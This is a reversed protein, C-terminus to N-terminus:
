RPQRGIEFAREVHVQQVGDQEGANRPQEGREHVQQNAAPKHVREDLASPAGKADPLGNEEASRTEPQSNEARCVSSRGGGREEPDAHRDASQRRRRWHAPRNRRQYRGALADAREASDDIKAIMKRSDGRRDSRAINDFCGVGKGSRKRRGRGKEQDANSAIHEQKSADFWNGLGSSKKSGPIALADGGNRGQNQRHSEAQGGRVPYREHQEPRFEVTWWCLRVPLTAAPNRRSFCSLAM